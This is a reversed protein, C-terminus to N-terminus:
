RLRRWAWRAPRAGGRVLRSFLRVVSVAGSAGWPHGWALAGGDACVRPDDDAVGLRELVALAQVAFAEVVEIAAVDTVSRGARCLAAEIAPAAGIGTLTPDCGIVAHSRLALGPAPARRTGDANAGAPVLAVAAAGD